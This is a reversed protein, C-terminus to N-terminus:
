PEYRISASLAPPHKRRFARAGASAPHLGPLYSERTSCVKTPWQWGSLLIDQLAITPQTRCRKGSLGRQFRQM